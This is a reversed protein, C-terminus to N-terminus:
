TPEKQVQQLSNQATIKTKIGLTFTYLSILILPMHLLTWYVGSSPEKMFAIVLTIVSIIIGVFGQVRLLLLNVKPYIFLLVTLYIPTMM